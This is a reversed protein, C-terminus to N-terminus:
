SKKSKTYVNKTNKLQKTSQWGNDLISKHGFPKHVKGGKKESTIGYQNIGQIIFPSAFSGYILAQRFAEAREPTLQNNQRLHKIFRQGYGNSREIADFVTQDSANALVRNQTKLPLDLWKHLAQRSLLYNRAELITTPIEISMDYNPKPSVNEFGEFAKSTVQQEFETYPYETSVRHRLEHPVNADVVVHDNVIINGNSKTYFAPNTREAWEFYTDPVEYINDYSFNKGVDKMQPRNAQLRPFVTNEIVQQSYPSASTKVIGTSPLAELAKDPHSIIKRAHDFYRLPPDFYPKNDIVNNVQSNIFEQTKKPSLEFVISNQGNGTFLTRIPLDDVLNAFEERSLNKGLAQCLRAYLDNYRIYNPQSPINRVRPGFSTDIQRPSVVQLSNYESSLGYSDKLGMNVVNDMEKALARTRMSKIVGKGVTRILKSASGIAGPTIIDAAFRGVPGLDQGTIGEIYTSPTILHMLNDFGEQAKQDQQQKQYRKYEQQARAHSQQREWSSRTDARFEAQRPQYTPTRRQIRPLVPQRYVYTSVAPVGGYQFKNVKKM